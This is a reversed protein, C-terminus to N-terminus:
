IKRSKLRHLLAYLKGKIDGFTESVFVGPPAKKFFPSLPEDPFEPETCGICISGVTTCGGVGEVFGRKPVDCHVIPGKCGLLGMCYPEGFEESYKGEAFFGARPCNEHATAKFIFKPRHFEDLEPIPLFGRATLVLHALVEAVHEGQAPCGPICIVPLNLKSRWNRGLYSLLGKSGTPNPKGHPIGGYCACTGVAVVAAARESLKDVWYNLTLPKGEGNEGVMCWYGGTKEALEENPVAGELILVFPDLKGKLGSELVNIAEEGHPLMITPHFVLAVGAAQPLFGTLLDPLSPHTAGTLSVTCGTCGQGQLWIANIKEIKIESM